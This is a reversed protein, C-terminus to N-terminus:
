GLTPGRSRARVAAYCTDRLAHHTSCPGGFSHNFYIIGSAGAILSHWVAASVETPSITPWDSESLTAWRPSPGCRSRRAPSILRRQKDILWGFNAAMHCNKATVVGPEDGAEPGDCVNNDTSLLRGFVTHGSVRQRLSGSGGREGLVRSGGYNAYQLRGDQPAQSGRTASCCRSVM